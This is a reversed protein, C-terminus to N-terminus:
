RRWGRRGGPVSPALNTSSRATSHLRRWSRASAAMLSREQAILAALAEQRSCAAFTITDGPGLQGAVSIDASIVAAVKPYGGTTQRDAMLLIPQGSAPVQLVGLPTADSILDLKGATELSPGALRYGMRNSDSGVVYSGSQLVDWAARVFRDLQPGPLVRLTARGDPLAWSSRSVVIPS